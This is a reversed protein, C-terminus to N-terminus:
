WALKRTKPSHYFVVRNAQSVLISFGRSSHLTAARELFYDTTMRFSHDARIIGCCHQPLWKFTKLFMLTTNYYTRRDTSGGEPLFGLMVDCCNNPFFIQVDVFSFM